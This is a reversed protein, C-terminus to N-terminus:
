QIYEELSLHNKKIFPLHSNKLKLISSIIFDRYDERKWCFAVIHWENGYFTIGIPEIERESHKSKRDKYKINLIHKYIIANQIIFLYNEQKYHEIYSPTKLNEEITEVSEKQASNLAYKVKDLTNEFHETTKNDSFRKMLTGALSLAIAENESFSIPPIYYSDLIFYGRSKDYSIPAGTEHLSTLYRYITRECVGFKEQLREISTFKRSQLFTIMATLREIRKM